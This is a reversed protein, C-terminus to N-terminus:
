FKIVAIQESTDVEDYFRDIIWDKGPLHNPNVLVIWHKAIELKQRAVQFSRSQILRLKRWVEEPNWTVDVGVRLSVGHENELRILCDVKLSLDLWEEWDSDDKLHRLAKHTKESLHELLVSKIERLPPPNRDLMKLEIMVAKFWVECEFASSFMELEL